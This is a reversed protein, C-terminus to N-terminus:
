ENIQVGGVWVSSSTTYACHPGCKPSTSQVTLSIDIKASQGKANGTATVAFATVENALVLPTESPSGTQADNATEVLYNSSPDACKPTTPCTSRQITVIDYPPYPANGPTPIAAPNALSGPHVRYFQLITGTTGPPPAPVPNIIVREAVAPPAPTPTGIVWPSATRLRNTVKSIAIRANTEMDRNSRTHISHGIIADFEYGILLLILGIIAVSTLTEVLTFGRASPM